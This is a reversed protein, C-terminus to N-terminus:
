STVLAFHTASIEAKQFDKNSKNVSRSDIVYFDGDFTFTEGTEFAGEDVLFGSLTIMKKLPGKVVSATEGNENQATADFEPESSVKAETPAMGISAALGAILPDDLGFVYNTDGYQNYSAPM